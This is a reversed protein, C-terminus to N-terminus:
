ESLALAAANTGIREESLLAGHEFGSSQLLRQLSPDGVADLICLDRDTLFVFVDREGVFQYIDEIFPRGIAILDFHAQM